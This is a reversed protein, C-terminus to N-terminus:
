PLAAVAVAGVPDTGTTSKIALTLAGSSLTYAGLDPNGSTTSGGTSVALVFNGTSDEALSIPQIGSAISSGAAITYTSGAATIPFWAIKGASTTGTGNAVYVYDGNALPLIANPALGGSSIPSGTAQTLNQPTALSSYNFVRLEGATGATEGIYFVRPTTSPDVAVSLASGGTNAPPISTATAGIPNADGSLFPVVMTGATGLAVFLNADDPSLVMGKIAANTINGFVQSPAAGGPGDYLGNSPNIAIADIQPSNNATVFADILWSGSIVMAAPIDTAIPNGSNGISLAGGSGVTYLYIGNVTGVYLFLGNSAVAISTPASPLTYPSGSVTDLTGSSIVYADLQKTTQDLVYFVGSSLTTPTTTTTTTSTPLDWFDKCGSLIATIVLGLAAWRVSKM